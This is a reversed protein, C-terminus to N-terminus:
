PSRVRSLVMALHQQLVASAALLVRPLSTGTVASIKGRCAVRVLLDHQVARVHAHLQLRLARWGEDVSGKVVADVQGARNFGEPVAQCSLCQWLDVAATCALGAICASAWWWWLCSHLAQALWEVHALEALAQVLACSLPCCPSSPAAAWLWPM